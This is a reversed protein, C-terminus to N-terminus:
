RGWNKISLERKLLKVQADIAAVPSTGCPFFACGFRLDSLATELRRLAQRRESKFGRAGNAYQKAVDKPIKSM